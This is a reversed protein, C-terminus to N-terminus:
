PQDQSAATVTGLGQSFRVGILVLGVLVIVGATVNFPTVLRQMYETMSLGLFLKERAWARATDSQKVRETM